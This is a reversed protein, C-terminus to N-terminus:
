CQNALHSQIPGCPVGLLIIQGLLKWVCDNSQVWDNFIKVSWPYHFPNTRHLIILNEKQSLSSIASLLSLLHFHLQISGLMQDKYLDANTAMKIKVDSSQIGPVHSTPIVTGMKTLMLVLLQHWTLWCLTVICKWFDDM